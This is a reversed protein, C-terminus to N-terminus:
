QNVSESTDTSEIVEKKIELLVDRKKELKVMEAIAAKEMSVDKTMAGVRKNVVQNYILHAYEREQAEIIALQDRTSIDM